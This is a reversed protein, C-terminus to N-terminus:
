TDGIRPGFTAVRRLESVDTHVYDSTIGIDSHGMLDKLAYPNGARAVSTAFTHRLLHPTIRVKEPIQAESKLRNLISNIADPRLPGHLYRKNPNMSMFVRDHDTEPRIRLWKALWPGLDDTIIAVRQHGYKTGHDLWLLGQELDIDPVRLAVSENRRIGTTILLRIIASDRVNIAMNGADAARVLAILYSLAVTKIQRRIRKPRKPATERDAFINTEIHGNVKLWRFFNAVATYTGNRTSYSLGAQRLQNMFITFQGPTLTDLSGALTSMHDFFTRLRCKYWDVTKPDWDQEAIFQESLAIYNM